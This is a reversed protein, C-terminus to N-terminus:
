LPQKFVTYHCQTPVPHIRLLGRFITYVLLFIFLCVACVMTEHGLRWWHWITWVESKILYLEGFTGPLRKLLQMRVSLEAYHYYHPLIIHLCVSAFVWNPPARIIACLNMTPLLRRYIIYLYLIYNVASVRLCFAGFCLSLYNKCCRHSYLILIRLCFASGHKWHLDCARQSLLEIHKWKMKESLLSLNGRILLLEVSYKKHVGVYRSTIWSRMSYLSYATKM